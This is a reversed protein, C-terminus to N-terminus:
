PLFLDRRSFGGRFIKEVTKDRKTHMFLVGLDILLDNSSSRGILDRLRFSLQYSERYSNTWEKEYDSLIGLGDSFARVIARSAMEASDIIFRYGEGVM